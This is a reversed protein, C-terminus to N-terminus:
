SLVFYALTLALTATIARGLPTVAADALMEGLTILRGSFGESRDTLAARAPAFITTSTRLEQRLAALGTAQAGEDESSRWSSQPEKKRKKPM